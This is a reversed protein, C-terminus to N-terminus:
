SRGHYSKLKEVFGRAKSEINGKTFEGKEINTLVSGLGLGAAGAELWELMNDLNIGGVAFFSVEDFPGKIAKLYNNGFNAAPFLKVIDAGAEVADSIETPTLAGMVIPVQHEHAMKVLEKRTNPSVLFQAGAKLAKEAVSVNTVTGAGIVADPHKMRSERIMREFGSTNSTIELVKIGGASLGEIIVPVESQTRTRVIAILKEKLIFDKIEEKSM